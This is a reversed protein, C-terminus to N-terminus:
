GVKLEGVCLLQSSDLGNYISIVGHIDHLHRVLSTDWIFGCIRKRCPDELTAGLHRHTM